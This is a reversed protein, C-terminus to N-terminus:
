FGNLVLEFDDFFRGPEMELLEKESRARPFGGPAEMIVSFCGTSISIFGTSHGVYNKIM